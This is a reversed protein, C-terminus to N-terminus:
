HGGAQALLHTPMLTLDFVMKVAVALIIGALLTKLHEGHLKEGFYAGIQVGVTSGILLLFALLFDVAHNKVAQLFTVEICTFLVQFLSTGVVMYIPMRLLYLMVPIMIFGGGVGMLAALTGVFVGLVVPLLASHTVGSKEFHIQLPLSKLARVMGSQRDRRFPDPASYHKRRIVNSLSEAMMLSGITGLMVVYTIRIAFDIMGLARLVKVLEVGFIGGTFSGILLFIGMKFDVNGLKWHAFTGSTSAAVIQNADSAVAVTAPIGIMILLPTLLFGGGVGFLGSLIGVGFGLGIPLFANISLLAVPLYLYM